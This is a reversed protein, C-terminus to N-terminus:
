YITVAHKIALLELYKILCNKDIRSWFGCTPNSGNTAGWGTKSADTSIEFDVQSTLTINNKANPIPGLEWKLDEIKYSM